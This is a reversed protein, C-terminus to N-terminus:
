PKGWFSVNPLLEDIKKFDENMKEYSGPYLANLGISRVEQLFIINEYFASEDTDSAGQECYIKEIEKMYKENSANATQKKKLFECVYGIMKKVNEGNSLMQLETRKWAMGMIPLQSLKGRCRCSTEMGNLLKLDAQVEEQSKYDKLGKQLVKGLLQEEQEERGVGSTAFCFNSFGSVMLGLAVIKSYKRIM